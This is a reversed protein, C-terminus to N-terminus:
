MEEHTHLGSFRMPQRPHIQDRFVLLKEAFCKIVEGEREKQGKERKFFSIGTEESTGHGECECYSFVPGM